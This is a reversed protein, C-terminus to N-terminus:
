TRRSAGGSRLLWRTVASWWSADPRLPDVIEALDREDFLSFQILEQRRLKRLQPGKLATIWGYGHASLTEGHVRTFLGRDGVEVAELNFRDRLKELQAPLTAAEAV